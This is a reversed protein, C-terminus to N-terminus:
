PKILQTHKNKYLTHLRRAKLIPPTLQRDILYVLIAIIGLSLLHSPIASYAGLVVGLILTLFTVSASNILPYDKHFSALAKCIFHYVIACLLILFYNIAIGGFIENIFSKVPISLSLILIIAAIQSATVKQDRLSSNPSKQTFDCYNIAVTLGFLVISISWATHPALGHKAVEDLLPSLLMEVIKLLSSVLLITRGNLESLIDKGQLSQSTILSPIVFLSFVMLLESPYSIRSLNFKYGFWLWLLSWIGLVWYNVRPIHPLSANEIHLSIAQTEPEANSHIILNRQYYRDALLQSTDIEIECELNNGEFRQQLFNIWSHNHPTHPPDSPHAEVEWWGSLITQPIPNTIKVKTKIREGWYNAIILLEEQKVRLRPLQQVDIAELATLARQASTFRKSVEPEVMKELWSLWGREMPPILHSFHLHYEDDILSGIQGSKVGTLLCILSVGLGYLDSAKTLRRNFLQEPPMFGMTGKVMSSVGIEGGGRRAFGFDVLYVNRQEDVLINEPKIDRHIIGPIQEQLYVLIKLARIAIEKIEGLQWTQFVALSPADIYEQVLCFGEPTELSTLYQPIGPHQLQHLVKIEQEYQEYESAEWTTKGLFQFQKIVVGRGTEVERARYTVRLQEPPTM